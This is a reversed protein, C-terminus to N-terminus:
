IPNGWNLRINDLINGAHKLKICSPFSDSMDEFIEEGLLEKSTWTKGAIEFTRNTMETLPLTGNPLLQNIGNSKKKLVVGINRNYVCLSINRCCYGAMVLHYILMMPNFHNCHGFNLMPGSEYPVTLALIGGERLDNFTKNLFAGVNRQHELVQSCWIADFQEDFEIKLYDEKYDAGYGPSIECTTTKKGLHQFLRTASGMHSGIDLVHNFSYHKLFKLLTLSSYLIEEELVHHGNDVRFVVPFASYSKPASARCEIKPYEESTDNYNGSFEVAKKTRTILNTEYAELKFPRLFGQFEQLGNKECQLAIEKDFSSGIIIFLEGVNQIDELKKVLLDNIFRGENKPSNDIYLSPEVDNLILYRSLVESFRGTGWIAIQKGMSLYKILRLWDEVNKM